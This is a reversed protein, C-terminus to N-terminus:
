KGYNSASNDLFLSGIDYYISSDTIMVAGGEMVATNGSFTCNESIMKNKRYIFIAGGYSGFSRNKIFTSNILLLYGWEIAYITGGEMGCSNNEFVTNQITLSTNMRKLIVGAFELASNQTFLCNSISASCLFLNIFGGSGEGRNNVAECREFSILSSVVQVINCEIPATNNIFVSDKFKMISNVGYILSSKHAINGQFRCSSVEVLPKTATETTPRFISWPGTAPFMTKLLQAENSAFRSRLIRVSSDGSIALSTFNSEEFFSNNIDIRSSSISFLAENGRNQQWTSSSINGSSVRISMLSGTNNFASVNTLAIHSAEVKIMSDASHINNEKLSVNHVVLEVRRMQVYICEENNRFVMNSFKGRSNEMNIITCSTNIVSPSNELANVNVIQFVCAKLRMVNDLKLQKFVSDQLKIQSNNCIIGSNLEEEKANPYTFELNNFFNGILSINKTNKMELVPRQYKGQFMNGQVLITTTASNEIEKLITIGSGIFINEEIDISMKSSDLYLYINRFTNNRIETHIIGNETVNFTVQYFHENGPLFVENMIMIDTDTVINVNIVNFGSAMNFQIERLLHEYKSYSSIGLGKCITLERIVVIGTATCSKNLGQWTPQLRLTINQCTPLMEAVLWDLKSLCYKHLEKWAPYENLLNQIQQCAKDIITTNVSGDM